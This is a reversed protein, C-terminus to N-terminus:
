PEGLNEQYIWILGGVTLTMNKDISIAEKYEKVAEEYEGSNQYYWGLNNRAAADDPYLEIGCRQMNLPKQFTTKWMPM